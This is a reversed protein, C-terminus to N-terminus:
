KRLLFLGIIAFAVGAIRQWSAFALKHFPDSALFNFYIAHSARPKDLFENIGVRLKNEQRSAGIPRLDTISDYEVHRIALKSM